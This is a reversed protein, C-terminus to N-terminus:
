HVRGFEVGIKNYNVAMYGNDAYIVADPRTKIVDQAMVGRYLHQEPDIDPLYRFNYVPFGNDYGTHTIDHKLRADSRFLSYMLAGQLGLNGLTGITQATDNTYYPKSATATGYKGGAGNLLDIYSQINAAPAQQNFNYRDIQEQLQNGAMGEKAAGVDALKGFDVYDQNAQQPAFFMSKMQNDREQQYLNGAYSNLADAFKRNNDATMEKYASGGYAGAKSFAADTQAATGKSYADTIDQLGQKFGPNTTPSLYDGQLTKMLESNAANNVPSGALARNATLDLAAQTEPSFPVVTSGPYYTQKLSGSNYLGQTDKAAQKLYDQIGSWPETKQTSTTEGSPQSSGGGFLSGM